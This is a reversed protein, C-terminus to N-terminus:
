KGLPNDIGRARCNLYFNWLPLTSRIIDQRTVMKPHCLYFYVLREFQFLLGALIHISNGMTSVDKNDGLAHAALEFGGKHWEEILRTDEAMAHNSALALERNDVWIDILKNLWTKLEEPTDPQISAFEKMLDEAQNGRTLQWVARLADSKSLFHKYFTARGVQARSAISDVSTQSYGDEIVARFTATVIRQRTLKPNRRRKPARSTM